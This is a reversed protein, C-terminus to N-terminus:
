RRVFGFELLWVTGDLGDFRHWTMGVRLGSSSEGLFIASLGVNGGFEAGGGGGGYGALFSAGAGPLLLVSGSVPAAWALDARAGIAVIGEFLIRPMTGLFLDPGLHGRRVHTGHVAITFLSPEFERGHGPIGVSGGIFWPDSEIDSTEQAAVSTTGTAALVLIVIGARLVFGPSM